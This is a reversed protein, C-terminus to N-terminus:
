RRTPDISSVLCSNTEQRGTHVSSTPLWSAPRSAKSSSCSRMLRLAAKRDRRSQVLADLVYGNADVARWLWHKKGKISVVMEDLHWKDAFAGKAARRIRRAYAGGFKGAWEAITQFSVEIGRAALM